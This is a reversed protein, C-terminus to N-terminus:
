QMDIQLGERQVVTRWKAIEEGVFEAYDEPSQHHATGGLQGLRRVTAPDNLLDGIAANYALVSARPVAASAFVGVWAAMDFAALEPITESLPPLDSLLASRERTTVALARLRGGAVHPGANVVNDFMYHLDGSLLATTALAAGTYPVHTATTSTAQGFWAAALHPSQGMGTSGYNLKGPNARLHAVFEAVTRAPVAPNVILVNPSRIMGSVPALSDPRYPLNRFLTYATAQPGINGILLTHGDAPARLLELTGVVGGGGPKSEVVAVAGWAANLHAAFLRAAIDLIGGPAAPVVIRITQSPRWDTSALAPTALWGAVFTRRRLTM